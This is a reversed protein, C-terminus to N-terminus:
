KKQFLRLGSRLIESIRRNMRQRFLWGFAGGAGATGILVFVLLWWGQRKVASVLESYRENSFSVRAYQTRWGLKPVRFSLFEEVHKRFLYVPSVVGSRMELYNKLALRNIAAADPTRQATYAALAEERAATLDVVSPDYVKHKDLFDFLVRVDELGANMGQGYFPVMAHAADGVIVAADKFNYPTCNISILPLHPNSSFQKILEVEPILEPSVGPFSEAFFSTLKSPNENLQAFTAHPAFLTCTFTKDASPIAIFMYSTGPWIHLHNPSLAFEPGSQTAVSEIQFECWLTDIYEQSYNVRAFKMLHYRAASHAGDAGILFDFAVEIEPNRSSSKPTSPDEPAVLRKEFWAKKNKFDAGTLKHNFYFTVNPLADLADLLKKNLGARDAAHIARGHVDYAQPTSFLEGNKKGHIMRGYMPITDDL